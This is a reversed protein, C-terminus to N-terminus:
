APWTGCQTKPLHSFDTIVLGHNYTATSEIRVSKRGYGLPDDIVTAYDVMIVAVDGLMQVLGMAEAESRNQYLVFGHTPDIDTYQDTGTRSQWRSNSGHYFDGKWSPWNLASVEVFSFKDFFNTYDYLDSLKYVGPVRSSNTDNRTLLDRQPLIPLNNTAIGGVHAPAYAYADCSAALAVVILIFSMLLMNFSLPHQHTSDRALFQIAFIAKLLAHTTGSLFHKHHWPDNLHRYSVM